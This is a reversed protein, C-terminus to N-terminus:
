FSEGVGFEKKKKKAIRPDSTSVVATGTEISTPLFGAGAESLYARYKHSFPLSGLDELIVVFGVVRQELFLLDFLIPHGKSM